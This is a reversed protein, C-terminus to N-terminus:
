CRLVIVVVVVVVVYGVTFRLTIYRLVFLLPYGLTWGVLFNVSGVCVLLLLSGHLDVILLYGVCCRVVVILV